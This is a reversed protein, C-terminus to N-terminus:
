ASSFCSKEESLSALARAFAIIFKVPFFIKEASLSLLLKKSAKSLASKLSSKNTATAFVGFASRLIIVNSDDEPVTAFLTSNPSSVVSFDSTPATIFAAASCPTHM